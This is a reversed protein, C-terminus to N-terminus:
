IVQKSLLKGDKYQVTGNEAFVYDYKHIVALSLWLTGAKSRVHGLVKLRHCSVCIAKRGKLDTMGPCPPIIANCILDLSFGVQGLIATFLRINNLLAIVTVSHSCETQHLTQNHAALEGVNWLEKNVQGSMSVQRELDSPWACQMWMRSHWLNMLSSHWWCTIETLMNKQQKKTAWDVHALMHHLWCVDALVSTHFVIRNVVWSSFGMLTCFPRRKRIEM